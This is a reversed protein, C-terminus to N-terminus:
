SFHWKIKVISSTIIEFRLFNKGKVFARAPSDCIFSRTRISLKKGNIILGNQIITNMEQIFENFYTTNQPHSEGFFIGIAMPKILPWEHVNMLIPWLCKRSSNYLPLGDININISIRLDEDMLEFCNRLCLEVGQHWYKSGDEFTSIIHMVRPTKM